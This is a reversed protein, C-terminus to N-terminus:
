NSKADATIEKAKNKGRRLGYLRCCFSTIIAVLDKMLDDHEVSDRNIVVLECGLMPLLKELYGFGFRTLRDKHEVVIRQPRADLLKLLKPRADNMGSAVEKIVKSVEWGRSRCFEECRGAQRDLDAKQPYSSVRAYVCAVDGVAQLPEVLITGSPTKSAAVPLLGLKFWRWATIYAIGQQRAWNALKV